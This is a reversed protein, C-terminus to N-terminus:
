SSLAIQKQAYEFKLRYETLNNQLEAVDNKLREKLEANEDRLEKLAIRIQEDSSQQRSKTQASKANFEAIKEREIQVLHELKEVESIDGKNMQQLGSITSQLQEKDTNLKSIIQETQQQQQNLRKQQAATQKTFDELAQQQHSLADDKQKSLDAIERQHHQELHNLHLESKERAKILQANIKANSTHLENIQEDNRLVKDKLANNQVWTTKQQTESGALQQELTDIKAQLQQTSSELKQNFEKEIDVQQKQEANLSQSQKKLQDKLDAAQKQSDQLAKGHAQQQVKHEANSKQMQQEHTTTLATTKAKLVTVQQQANALMKQNEVLSASISGSDQQYVKLEKDLQQKEQTLTTKQLDHETTLQQLQQAHTTTLATIIANLDNVQKKTDALSQKNKVLRASTSSSDKQFSLLKLDYEQQQKTLAKQQRTKSNELELSTTNLTKNQQKIQSKLDAIEIKQNDENASSKQQTLSIKDLSKQKDKLQKNLEDVDSKQATKLKKIDSLQQKNAQKLQEIQKSLSRNDEVLRQNNLQASALQSQLSTVAESSSGSAQELTDIRQQHTAILQAIDAKHNKNLNTIEKEASLKASDTTSLTKKLEILTKNLEQHDTKLKQQDKHEDSVSAKLQALQHESSKTLQKFQQELEQLKQQLLEKEKGLTQNQTNLPELQSQLLERNEKTLRVENILKEEDILKTKFEKNATILKEKLVDYKAEYRVIKHRLQEIESHKLNVTDHKSQSLKEHVVNFKQELQQKQQDLSQQKDVQADATLKLALDNFREELQIFIDGALLQLQEEIETTLEPKISM